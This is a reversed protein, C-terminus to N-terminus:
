KLFIENLTFFPSITANAPKTPAPRDSTARAIKPTSLYSDPETFILPSGSGAPEGTSAIARFIAKTGSSRRWCPNNIIAPTLRFIEM